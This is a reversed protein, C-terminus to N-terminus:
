FHGRLRALREDWPAGVGMMWEMAEALPQPTVVYRVERGTKSASVLGASALSNLHKVIAQRSVPLDEALETATASGLASIEQLVQRRTPDSLAAFVAHYPDQM